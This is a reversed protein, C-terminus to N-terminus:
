QTHYVGWGWLPQIYSDDRQCVGVQGSLIRMNLDNGLYRWKMPVSSFGPIFSGLNRGGFPRGVELMKDVTVRECIPSGYNSKFRFPFLLSCWGDVSPAGSHSNYKYFGSWFKAEKLASESNAKGSRATAFETLPDVIKEKLANTWAPDSLITSIKLMKEGMKIWDEATGDLEVLPIGCMTGTTYDFVSRTANMLAVDYAANQFPGTTSFSGRLGERAEVGLEDSIKHAFEEFVQDWANNGGLTFDDRSVYLEVKGDRKFYKERVTAQDLSMLYLGVAQIIPLLLDDPRLALPRHDCFAKHASLVLPSIGPCKTVIPTGIPEYEGAEFRSGDPLQGALVDDLTPPNKKAEVKLDSAKKARSDREKQWEPMRKALDELYYKSTDNPRIYLHEEYHDYSGDGQHTLSGHKIKSGRLVPKADGLFVDVVKNLAPRCDIVHRGPVPEPLLIHAPTPAPARTPAPTSDSTSLATPNSTVFYRGPAPMESRDICPPLQEVPVPACCPKEQKRPQDGSPSEQIKAFVPDWSFM